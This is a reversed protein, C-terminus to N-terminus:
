KGDKKAAEKAAGGVKNEFPDGGHMEIMVINSLTARGEFGPEYQFDVLDGVSVGYDKYSFAEVPQQGFCTSNELDYDSFNRLGYYNFCPKRNKTEGSKIGVIRVQM